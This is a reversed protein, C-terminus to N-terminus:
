PLFLFYRSIFIDSGCKKFCWAIHRHGLTWILISISFFSLQKWCCHWLLTLVMKFYNLNAYARWWLGRNIYKLGVKQLNFVNKLSKKESIKSQIEIVLNLHMKFLNKAVFHTSLLLLCSSQMMDTLPWIVALGAGLMLNCRHWLPVNM